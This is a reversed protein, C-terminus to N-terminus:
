DKVRLFTLGWNGASFGAMLQMVIDDGALIGEGECGTGCFV